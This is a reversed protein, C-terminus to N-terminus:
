IDLIIFEGENLMDDRTFKQKLVLEKFSNITGDHTVIFIRQVNQKQCWKIFSLAISQYLKEPVHNVSVLRKDFFDEYLFEFKDNIAFATLEKDTMVEDCPLTKANERYPYIRPGIAYCIFKSCSHGKTFINATELTRYTPSVVVIDDALIHFYKQINKAQQIGKQTLRPHTVQFSEPENINHQAEGHRLFILKM